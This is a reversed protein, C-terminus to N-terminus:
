YSSPTTTPDGIRGGQRRRWEGPLDDMWQELRILFPRCKIIIIIENQITFASSPLNDLLEELPLHLRDGPTFGHMFCGGFKWVNDRGHPPKL